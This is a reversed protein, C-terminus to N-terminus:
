KNSKSGLKNILFKFVPQGLIIGSNELISIVEVVAIAGAAIRAAAIWTGWINQEVVFLTVLTMQYIFFKTLVRGARNSTIREQKKLSAWVGLVTDVSILLGVTLLMPIIPTIYTVASLVLAYAWLAYENKMLRGNNSM